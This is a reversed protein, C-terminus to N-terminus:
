STSEKEHVMMQMEVEKGGTSGDEPKKKALPQFAVKNRKLIESSKIWIFSILFIFAIVCFIILIVYSEFRVHFDDTVEPKLNYLDFNINTLMSIYPNFNNPYYGGLSLIIKQPYTAYNAQQDNNPNKKIIIVVTYTTNAPITQKYICSYYYTGNDYIKSSVSLETSNNSTIKIFARDVFYIDPSTFSVIIETNQVSSIFGANILSAEYYYKNTDLGAISCENIDETCIM